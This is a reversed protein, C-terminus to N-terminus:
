RLRVIKNRIKIWLGEIGDSLYELDGYASQYIQSHINCLLFLNKSLTKRYSSIIIIWSIIILENM